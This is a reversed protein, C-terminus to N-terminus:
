SKCGTIIKIQVDVTLQVTIIQHSLVVGGSLISFHFHSETRCNQSASALESNSWSSSSDLWFIYISIPFDRLSSLSFQSGEAFSSWIVYLLGTVHDLFFIFSHVSFYYYLLFNLFSFFLTEYTMFILHKSIYFVILSAFTFHSIVQCSIVFYYPKKHIFM